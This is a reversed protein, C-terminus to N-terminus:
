KKKYCINLIKEILCKLKEIWSIDFKKRLVIAGDTKYSDIEKDTLLKESM